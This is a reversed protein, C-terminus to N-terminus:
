LRPMMVGVYVTTPERPPSQSLPPPGPLTPPEPPDRPARGPPGQLTPPEPPDRPARGPPGTAAAYITTCSPPTPAPPSKQSRVRARQVQSYITHEARDPSPEQDAPPAAPHPTRFVGFLVIIIIIIVVPVVLLVLLETRPRAAGRPEHGCEPPQFAVARSSVPNSATCVCPTHPDWPPYSLHLFSSNGSCLGPVGSDQSGWSYSVEDGREATCNLAVTCSGNAVERSLIRVSPHSVPEYVQLRIQQVEEEPGKSVVYEYLQGDRRSTNLIELSFDARHFRIQGQFHNTCNGGSYRVLVQKKPFSGWRKWSSERFEATLERLRPPVRLVTAKGLTGPVTEGEGPLMGWVAGLALLLRLLLLLLRASCGM